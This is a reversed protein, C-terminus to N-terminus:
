IRPNLWGALGPLSRSQLVIKGFGEVRTVLGEGGFVSSFLGGAFQVKLKLHPEYAVLHSTDVIYQGEVQHDVLGGYAGYWLTGAGTVRLKFFGERGIGSAFGAWQVGLRLGPTSALYAGPQLCVGARGDLDIRRLEGPTGQTLVLSLPRDTSNEFHNVFFSEGGFLKKAVAPLFGGNTRAVMSLDPDMTAMADAEAVIREGPDLTLHVHAFSPAGEIKAEM